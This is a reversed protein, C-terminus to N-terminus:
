AGFYIDGMKATSKNGRVRRFDSMLRPRDLWTSVTQKSDLFSFYIAFLLTNVPKKSILLYSM